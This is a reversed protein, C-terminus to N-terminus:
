IVSSQAYRSNHLLILKLGKAGGEGLKSPKRSSRSYKERLVVDDACSWTRGRPSSDAWLFRESFPNVLSDRFEQATECVLGEAMAKIKLTVDNTLLVLQGDNNIRRSLLACELIHDEATPSVIELLSWWASFPVSSAPGDPFLGGNGESFRSQPSAPPTPAIPRGEEELSQVHIWWNTNVMCEEIWQLASSVETLRRFLSGQRNMCDLERIVIRPIILQTGKLGQLLQLATRSEKNLLCTTDVVITWRKEEAISNNKEITQVYNVYNSSKSTTSLVVAESKSKSSSNVLLPQFPVREARSKMVMAQPELREQNRFASRLPKQEQLVRPTQIEKGSPNIANESCPSRHLKFHKKEEVKGMKKKMSRLRLTNPTFNEKDPTFPEENEDLGTSAAKSIVKNKLSSSRYSMSDMIQEVKGMKKMSKMIRTNPTFNEKDPTFNEEKDDDLDTFLAKSIVDNEIDGQHLLEVEANIDSGTRKGMSRGTQIQLVSSPKGRRSWISALESKQESKILPSGPNEKQSGGTVFPTRPSQNADHFQQSEIDSLISGGLLNSKQESKILPIGPNEKQSGGTAFPTRPSQNAEHFQQSEIDSLVSGGLLNSKQESKILPSGPNEKQSGGTAFPNQPSQNAEHFQQSEIDPLVSGGLLNSKQESKILLSGPDEKQSGGTAFPTQPSQNAKDFQQGEIDSLASGGPLCSKVSETALHGSQLFPIEGLDHHKRLPDENEVVHFVEAVQHGEEEGSISSNLSIPLSFKRGSRMPFSGPNEIETLEETGLLPEPYQNEKDLQQDDIRSIVIRSPLPSNVSEESLPQDFFCSMESQDYDERLLCKKEIEEHSFSSELCELFNLNRELEGPSTELKKIESQVEIAASPRPIQIDKDLQQNESWLSFSKKHEHDKMSTNSNEVEENSFLPSNMYEPLPPASPIVNNLSILNENCFVLDMGEELNGLLQIENNEVFLCNHDQHTGERKGEEVQVSVDSPPVFPNEMDYAQSVPVWHLRYVRSSSGLRVTDGENLEVRIGPEIKKGLVWTGHVSSLDIVSLKHSSPKSHIRLHFRSISPHELTINCDPHRGVLLTEEFEQVQDGNKIPNFAEPDPVSPPNDLLFINKLIANNKLVTFVPITKEQEQAEERKDSAAM